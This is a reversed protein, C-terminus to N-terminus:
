GNDTIWISKIEDIERERDYSGVVDDFDPPSAQEDDMGQM